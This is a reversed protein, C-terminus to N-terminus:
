DLFRCKRAHAHATLILPSCVYGVGDRMESLCRIQIGFWFLKLLLIHRPRSVDIHVLCNLRVEVCISIKCVLSLGVYLSFKPWTWFNSINHYRAGRGVHVANSGYLRM